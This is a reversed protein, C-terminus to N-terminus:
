WCREYQAPDSCCGCGTGRDGSDGLGVSEARDRGVAGIALSLSYEDHTHSTTVKTMLEWALALDPRFM